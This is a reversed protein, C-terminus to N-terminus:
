RRLVIEMMNVKQFARRPEGPGELLAWPEEWTEPKGCGAQGVMRGLAEREVWVEIGDGGDRGEPTSSM